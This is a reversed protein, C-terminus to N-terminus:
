AVKAYLVFPIKHVSLPGLTLGNHGSEAGPLVCYIAADRGTLEIRDVVDRLFEKRDAAEYSEIESAIQMAIGDVTSLDIRQDRAAQMERLRAEAARRDERLTHLERRIMAAHEALDPDMLTRVAQAERRRLDDIRRQLRSREAETEADTHALRPLNRQILALLEGPVRFPRSVAEWIAAEIREASISGAECRPDANRDRGSCRYFRKGHMPCVGYRRHCRGCYLLGGLLYERAPRGTLRANNRTIAAQVADFTERSILAPVELPIWDSEPRWRLVTKKNRRQRHEPSPNEPEAVQRRNYYAQGTYLENHLIRTVTSKAWREGRQPRAGSENLRYLVTRISAGELVWAFAQRVVAAQEDDIVLSGQNGQAKGVYRYGYPIRGGNFFGQRAKEKRGRQTRERIKEREYEAFIGKLQLFMKSEPNTAAPTTVFELRVGARDCEDQLIALHALKRSLRDPDHAIVVDVTRARIVARLRELAPRDMDAGSYGEDAYASLDTYGHTRAYEEVARKQSALGFQEVQEELSVRCYLAARMKPPM